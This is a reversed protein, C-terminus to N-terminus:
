KYLRCIFIAFTKLGVCRGGKAGLLYAQYKHGKSASDVGLDYRPRFSWTLSFNCHCWRSSFECGEPKYCLVDVLQAV